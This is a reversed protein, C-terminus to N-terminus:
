KFSALFQFLNGVIFFIIGWFTLLSILTKEKEFLNHIKQILDYIITPLLIYSFLILAMLSLCAYIFRLILIDFGINTGYLLLRVSINLNFIIIFLFLYFYKVDANLATIYIGKSTDLYDLIKKTRLTIIKDFYQELYEIRSEGILQPALMFGAIFNLIIGIRNLWDLVDSNILKFM